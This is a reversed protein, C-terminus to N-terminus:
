EAPGSQEIARGQLPLVGVWDGVQKTLYVRHRGWGALPRIAQGAEVEVDGVFRCVRVAAPSQVEFGELIRGHNDKGAGADMALKKAGLLGRGSELELALPLGYLDDPPSFEGGKVPPAPPPHLQLRNIDQSNGGRESGGGGALRPLVFPPPFSFEWQCAASCRLPQRFLAKCQKLRLRTQLAGAADLLVGAPCLSRADRRRRSL